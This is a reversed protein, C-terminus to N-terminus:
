NPWKTVGILKGSGGQIQKLQDVTLGVAHKVDTSTFQKKIKKM